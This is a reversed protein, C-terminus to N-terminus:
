KRRERREILSFSVYRSPNNKLDTLLSDLSLAATLLEEHLVDEKLLRQLSGEGYQITDVLSNISLLADDLHNVTNEFDVRALNNTLTDVNQLIGSLVDTQNKLNLTISNLNALVQGIQEGKGDLMISTKQGLVDYTQVLQDLDNVLANLTIDSASVTSAFLKNINRLLSDANHLIPDIGESITALEDFITSDYQAEIVSGSPLISQEESMQLDIHTEGLFDPGVLKAKSGKPLDISNDLTFVVKVASEGQSNDLELTSVKGVVLGNIVVDDSPALGRVNDYYVTFEQDIHLVGRGKLFQIGGFVMVIVVLFFLGVKIERQM